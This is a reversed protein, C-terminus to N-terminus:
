LQSGLLGLKLSGRLLALSFSLVAGTESLHSKQPKECNSCLVSVRSHMELCRRQGLARSDNCKLEEPGEGDSPLM